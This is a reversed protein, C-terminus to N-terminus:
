GQTMDSRNPSTGRSKELENKVISRFLGAMKRHRESSEKEELADLLATLWYSLWLMLFMYVAAVLYAAKTGSQFGFLVGVGSGLFAAHVVFEKATEMFAKSSLFRRRINEINAHLYAVCPALAICLGVLACAIAPALVVLIQWHKIM